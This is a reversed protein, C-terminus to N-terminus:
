RISQTENEVGQRKGLIYNTKSWIVGLGKYEYGDYFSDWMHASFVGKFVEKAKTRPKKM